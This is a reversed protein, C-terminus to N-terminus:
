DGLSGPPLEDLDALDKPRGSARKNQRLHDLSIINIPLGNVEVQERATWCTEFDVGSPATM